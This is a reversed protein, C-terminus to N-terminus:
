KEVLLMARSNQLYIDHQNIQTRRILNDKDWFFLTIASNRKASTASVGSEAFRVWHDSPAGDPEILTSENLNTM